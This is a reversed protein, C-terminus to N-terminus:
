SLIQPSHGLSASFGASPDGEGVSREGTREQCTRESQLRAILPEVARGIEFEAAIKQQAARALDRRLDGNRLLLLLKRALDAWDAPCFLLGDQGDSVLEPIGAVRTAVVPIGIAMAEMLVVPLGEMFSPLVLIDSNAIEQLTSEEDLRGKLTVNKLGLTQIKREVRSREAGEGVFTVDAEVGFTQVIALAELLGLHGKEPSLRAVCIIRPRARSQMGSDTKINTLKLGCRAVFLKNWQDPATVRMAQARGFHSACVVFKASQVKSALLLGAPYDTESVGHLTLSWPIQLFTSALLGVNAASNAFHNHLHQIGRRELERALPISEAFHFLAWIIARIGPAHHRLGLAAVRLYDAPRTFIAAIHAAVIRIAPLGLVYFTERFASRDHESKCEEAGPARISFTHVDLGRSRLEEIERRIFTHSTAPYQSILYGIRRPRESAHNWRGRPREWGLVRRAQQLM